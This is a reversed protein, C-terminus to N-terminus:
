NIINKAVKYAQKTNTWINEMHNIRNNATIFLTEPTDVYQKTSHEFM